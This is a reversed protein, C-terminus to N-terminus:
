VMWYYILGVAGAITMVVNTIILSAERWYIAVILWMVGGLWLIIPGAPYFGFSNLFTGVILTATAFWKVYEIMIAFCCAFYGTSFIGRVPGLCSGDRFWVYLFIRHLISHDYNYREVLRKLILAM